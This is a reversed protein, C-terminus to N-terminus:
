TFSKINRLEFIHCQKSSKTNWIDLLLRTRHGMVKRAIGPLRPTSTPQRPRANQVHAGVIHNHTENDGESALLPTTHEGALSQQPYFLTVYVFQNCSFYKSFYTLLGGKPSTQCIWHQNRGDQLSLHPQPFTSLTDFGFVSETFNFSWVWEYKKYRQLYSSSSAVLIALEGSSLYTTWTANRFLWVTYDDLLSKLQGLIEILSRTM